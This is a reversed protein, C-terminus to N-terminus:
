NVERINRKTKEWKTPTQLEMLCGIGVILIITMVIVALLGEYIERPWYDDSSSRAVLRVVNREDANPRLNIHEDPIYEREATFIALYRGNTLEKLVGDLVGVFAADRDALAVVVVETKGNSFIAKNNQLYQQMFLILLLM